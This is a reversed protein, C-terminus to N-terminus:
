NQTPTEGTEEQNSAQNNPHNNVPHNAQNNPAEKILLIKRTTHLKFKKSRSSKLRRYKFRSSTIEKSVKKQNQLLIQM